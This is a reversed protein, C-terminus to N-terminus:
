RHRRDYGEPAHINLSLNAYSDRKSCVYTLYDRQLHISAGFLIENLTDICWILDSDLADLLREMFMCADLLRERLICAYYLRGSFIWELAEREVYM